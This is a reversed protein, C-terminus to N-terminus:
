GTSSSGSPVPAFHRSFRARTKLKLHSKNSVSLSLLLSLSLICIILNFSADNKIQHSWHLLLLVVVCSARSVCVSECVCVCLFPYFEQMFCCAPPVSQSVSQSTELGVQYCQLQAFFFILFHHHPVLFAHLPAPTLFLFFFYVSLLLQLLVPDWNELLLCSSQNFVDM